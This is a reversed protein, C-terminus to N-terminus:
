INLKYRAHEIGLAIWHEIQEEKELGAPSVYVFEKMPKGSFDMPRIFDMKLLDEMKEALVRVVLEKGIIGVTMKGRLLFAIGGFMNKETM